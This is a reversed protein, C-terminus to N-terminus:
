IAMMDGYSRFLIVSGAFMGLARLLKVNHAWKEESQYQSKLFAKTKEVSIGYSAM